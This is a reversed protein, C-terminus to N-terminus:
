GSIESWDQRQGCNSCYKNEISNVYSLCNVCEGVSILEGRFLVKRLKLPKKKAYVETYVKHKGLYYFHRYLFTLLIPFLVVWIPIFWDRLM